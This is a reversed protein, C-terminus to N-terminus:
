PLCAPLEEKGTHTFAEALAAYDADKQDTLTEDGLDAVPNPLFVTGAGFASGSPPKGAASLVLAAGADKVIAELRSRSRSMGAPGPVATAGAYLCGFFAAIFDLGSPYVLLVREGAAGRRQLEAGVRRARGALDGFTVRAAEANGNELFTFATDDAQCRGRHELVDVLTKWKPEGSPSRLASM